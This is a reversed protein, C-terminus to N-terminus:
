RLRHLEDAQGLRPDVQGLGHDVQGERRLRVRHDLRDGRRGGVDARPQDSRDGRVEPVRVVRSRLLEAVALLVEVRMIVLFTDYSLTISRVRHGIAHVVLRGGVPHRGAERLAGAADTGDQAPWASGGRSLTPWVAFAQWTFSARMCLAPSRAASM